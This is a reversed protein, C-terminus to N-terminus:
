FTTVDTRKSVYLSLQGCVAPLILITKIFRLRNQSLSLQETWCCGKLIVSSRKLRKEWPMKLRNDRASVGLCIQSPLAM